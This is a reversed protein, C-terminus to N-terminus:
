NSVGVSKRGAILGLAFILTERQCLPDPFIAKFREESILGQWCKDWDAHAKPTMTEEKKSEKKNFQIIDGM